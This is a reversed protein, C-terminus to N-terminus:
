GLRAFSSVLRPTVTETVLPAASCLSFPSPAGRRRRPRLFLIFTDRKMDDRAITPATRALRASRDVPAQIPALSAAGDCSTVRPGLPSGRGRKTLRFDPRTLERM